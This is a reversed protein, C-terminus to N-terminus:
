LISRIRSDAIKIFEPNLEIGVWNEYFTVTEEIDDEIIVCDKVGNEGEVRGVIKNWTRKM